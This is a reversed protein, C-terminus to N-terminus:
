RQLLGQSPGGQGSGETLRGQSTGEPGREGEAHRQARRECLQRGEGHQDPQGVAAAACLVPPLSTVGINSTWM